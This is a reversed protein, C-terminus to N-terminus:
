ILRHLKQLRREALFLLGVFREGLKRLALDVLVRLRSSALVPPFISAWEWRTLIKAADATEIQEMYRAHYLRMLM